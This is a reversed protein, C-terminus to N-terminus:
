GEPSMLFAPVLSARAKLFLRHPHLRPDRPLQTLVENSFQSVGNIEQGCLTPQIRLKEDIFFLHGDFAWHHFKCLALGNRVDNSGNRAVPYIHAADVEANEKYNYREEGCVACTFEYNSRVDISFARSRYKRFSTSEVIEVSEELVPAKPLDGIISKEALVQLQFDTVASSVGLPRLRYRVVRRGDEVFYDFGTVQVLGQFTFATEPKENTFLYIPHGLNQQATLVRNKGKAHNQDHQDAQKGYKRSDDEGVYVLDGTEEDWFNGYRGGGTEAFVVVSDTAPFTGRPTIGATLKGYGYQLALPAVQARTYKEGLDLNNFPHDLDLHATLGAADAAYIGPGEFRIAGQDRLEQLIRSVTQGPTNGASGTLRTITALQDALLDERTFRHSGSQEVQRSIAHIVAQRWKM